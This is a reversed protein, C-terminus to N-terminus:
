QYLFSEAPPVILANLFNKTRLKATVYTLKLSNNLKQTNIYSTCSQIIQVFLFTTMLQRSLLNRIRQKENQLRRKFIIEMAGVSTEKHQCYCILSSAALYVKNM